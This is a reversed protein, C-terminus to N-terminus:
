LTRSVDLMFFFVRNELDVDDSRAMSMLARDYRVDSSVHWGRAVRWTAGAGALVGVDLRRARDTRDDIAGDPDEVEFGRLLGFTPGLLLYPRVPRRMPAVLRFLSAIEVYDINFEAAERDSIETGSGKMAWFVEPQADVGKILRIRMSIGGALGLRETREVIDSEADEGGLNASSIGFLVGVDLHRRPRQPTDAALTGPFVCLSVFMLGPWLMWRM